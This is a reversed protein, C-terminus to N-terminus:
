VKYEELGHKWITAYPTVGDERFDVLVYMSNEAMSEGMYMDYNDYNGLIKKVAGPAGSQFEKIKEESAGSEKLTSLVKKVYATAFNSVTSCPGSFGRLHENM